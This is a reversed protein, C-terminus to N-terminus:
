AKSNTGGKNKEQKLGEEKLKADDPRNLEIQPMMFFAIFCALVALGAMVLFLIRYADQYGPIITARVHEAEEESM